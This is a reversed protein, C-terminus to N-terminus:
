KSLNFYPDELFKWYQRRSCIEEMGSLSCEVVAYGMSPMDSVFTLDVDCSEAIRRLSGKELSYSTKARSIRISRADLPQGDHLSFNVKPPPVLTVLFRKTKM